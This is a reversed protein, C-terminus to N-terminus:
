PCDNHRQLGEGSHPSSYAYNIDKVACMSSRAPAPNHVLFSVAVPNSIEPVVGISVDKRNATYYRVWFAGVPKPVGGRTVDWGQTGDGYSQMYGPIRIHHQIDMYLKGKNGVRERVIPVYFAQHNHGNIVM